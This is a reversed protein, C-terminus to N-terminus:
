RMGTLEESSPKQRVMKFDRHLLRIGKYAVATASNPNQLTLVLNFRSNTDPHILEGDSWEQGTFKLNSIIIRGKTQAYKQEWSGGVETIRAFYRDGTKFFEITSQRSPVYWLGLLADAPKPSPASATLSVSLLCTLLLSLIIKM